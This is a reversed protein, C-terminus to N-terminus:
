EGLTIKSYNKFWEEGFKVKGYLLFSGLNVGILQRDENGIVLNTIEDLNIDIFDIFPMEWFDIANEPKHNQKIFSSDKKTKCYFVLTSFIKGRNAVIGIFKFDTLELNCLEENTERKICEVFNMKNNIIDKDPDFMGGMAQWLIHNNRRTGIVVKNDNTEIIGTVTLPNAINDINKCMDLFEKKSTAIFSKYDTLRFRLIDNKIELFQMLKGNFFKSQDITKNLVEQWNKDIFNKEELDLNDFFENSITFLSKIENPNKDCSYIIKANNNSNIYNSEILNYM